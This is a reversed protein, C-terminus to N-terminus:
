VLGYRKRLVWETALVLLIGLLPWLLRNIPQTQRQYDVLPAFAPQARISDSLGALATPALYQGGTRLAIQRLLEDDAELRTYEVDSRGVSFRGQDTDLRQGAVTGEASYRYNGEPLASLELSYSGPVTEALYYAQARNASDTVVLKIEVGSRPNYSENYVQGVFRIPEEGSFLLQTPRVRFRRRDEKVTLWQVLNRLWTDFYGFDQTLSYNHIRYRWWGEALLVAQKTNGEHALAVVPYELQIGKITARAYVEASRQPLWNGAPRLLPPASELWADFDPGFTYTAHSRYSGTLTLQVETSTGNVPQSKSLLAMHQAQEPHVNLRTQVGVIHLLPLERAAVQAFLKDMVPKDAATAPFNHLIVLDATAFEAESPETFFRNPSQRVRGLVELRPDGSLAADLAGLDPHPGGALLLIKLRSDIVQISFGRSNNALTREGPLGSATIRYTQFGPQNLPLTFDADVTGNAPLKLTQRQPAEGPANLTLTLTQGPYGLHGLRVRVQTTSGLYGVENHLVQEIRLDRKPTTDGLLVTHVPVRLAQAAYLPSAGETSIGDTAFVVAVLHDDRYRREISQLTTALNTGKGRYVLSDPARGLPELDTSFPLIDVRGGAERLQTAFQGLARPYTQRLTQSDLQAAVSETADTVVVVAPPYRLTARLSLLPEILLLAIAFVALGRLLPLLTRVWTPTDAPPRQYLFYAVGVALAACLLVYVPSHTFTLEFM